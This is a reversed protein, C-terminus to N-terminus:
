DARPYRRGMRALGRCLVLIFVAYAVLAAVVWLVVTM